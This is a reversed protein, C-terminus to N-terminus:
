EKLLNHIFKVLKTPVKRTKLNHILRENITNPFTGEINLFLVSIVQRKRWADKIKYLLTHLADTTTRGPRGGFYTSPLLSYKEMYYTLQESIIAMLLKGM